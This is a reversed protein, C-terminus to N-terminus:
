PRPSPKMGPLRQVMESAEQAIRQQIAISEDLKVLPNDAFEEASVQGDDNLDAMEFRGCAMEFERQATPDADPDTPAPPIGFEARNLFGDQNLDLKRFQAADGHGLPAPPASTAAGEGAPREAALQQGAQPSPIPRPQPPLTGTPVSSSGNM